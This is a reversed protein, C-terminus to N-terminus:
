GGGMITNRASQLWSDLDRAKAEDFWHDVAQPSSYTLLRGGLVKRVGKRAWPSGTDPDVMVEGGYQFRAYPGPFVVQRGGDDVYSRQQLSGTQHPMLARCSHLVNDGLMQQARVFRADYRSMPINVRMNATVISIDPFHYEAM